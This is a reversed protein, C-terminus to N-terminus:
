EDSDSDVLDIEVRTKKNAPEEEKNESPMYQYFDIGTSEWSKMVLESAFTDSGLNDRELLIRKAQSAARESSGSTAQSPIVDTFLRFLLPHSNKNALWWTVIDENDSFNVGCVSLFSNIALDYQNLGSSSPSSIDEDSDSEYRCAKKKKNTTELPTDDSSLHGYLDEMLNKVLLKLVGDEKSKKKKSPDLFSSVKRIDSLVSFENDDGYSSWVELMGKAAEKLYPPSEGGYSSEVESLKRKIWKWYQEVRHCTPKLEPELDVRWNNFDTLFSFIEQIVTWEDDHIKFYKLEGYFKSSVSCMENLIHMCNLLKRVFEYESGWKIATFYGPPTWWAHDAKKCEDAFYKAKAKSNRITMCLSEAKKVLPKLVERSKEIILAILHNVCRNVFFPKELKMSIHRQSCIPENANDSTCSLIKNFLNNEKFTYLISDGVRISVGNGSEVQAADLICSKIGEDWWHLTVMYFARMNKDTWCDFTFHFRCTLKNFYAARCEIFVPYTSSIWKSVIKHDYSVKLKGGLGKVVSELLEPLWKGKELMKYGQSSRIVAKLLLKKMQDQDLISARSSVVPQLKRQVVKEDDNDSDEVKKDIFIKHKTSLHDKLTTTSSTSAYEMKCHKCREASNEIETYENYVPHTRNKGERKRKPMMPQGNKGYKPFDLDPFSSLLVHNAPYVQLSSLMAGTLQEPIKILFNKDEVEKSKGMIVTPRSLYIFWSSEEMKEKTYGFLLPRDIIIRNLFAAKSAKVFNMVKNKTDKVTIGYIKDFPRDVLIPELNTLIVFDLRLAHGVYMIFFENKYCSDNELNENFEDVMKVKQPTSLDADIRIGKYLKYPIQIMSAQVTHTYKLYEKLSKVDTIRKDMKTGYVLGKLTESSYWSSQLCYLLIHFFNSDDMIPRTFGFKVDKTVWKDVNAKDTVDEYIKYKFQVGNDEISSWERTYGVDKTTNM